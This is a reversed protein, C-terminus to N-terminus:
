TTRFNLLFLYTISTTIFILFESKSGCKLYKVNGFISANGSFIKVEVHTTLAKMSSIFQHATPNNNWGNRNRVAAFFTELSDQSMRFTLLYKLYCNEVIWKKSMLLLNELNAFLGIFGTKRNTQLIYKGEFNRITRIYDLFTKILEELKEVMNPFIPSKTGKGRPNRSNSV